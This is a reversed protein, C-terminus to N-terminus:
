VEEVEVGEEEFFGKQKAIWLPAACLSGSLDPIQVKYKIETAAGETSDKSASDATKDASADTSSDTSGSQTAIGCGSLALAAATVAAVIKGFYHKRM